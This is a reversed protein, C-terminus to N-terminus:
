VKCHSIEADSSGAGRECIQVSSIRCCDPSELPRACGIQARLNWGVGNSNRIILVMQLLFQKTSIIILQHHHNNNNDHKNNNNASRGGSSPDSHPISRNSARTSSSNILELRKLKDEQQFQVFLERDVVRPLLIETLLVSGGGRLATPTCLDANPASQALGAHMRGRLWAYACTYM